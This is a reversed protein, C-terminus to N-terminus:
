KRKASHVETSDQMRQFRRHYRVTLTKQELDPFFVHNATVRPAQSTIGIGSGPWRHGWEGLCRVSKLVRRVNLISSSCYLYVSFSSSLAGDHLPILLGKSVWIIGDRESQQGCDMTLGPDSKGNGKVPVEIIRPIGVDVNHSRAEGPLHGNHSPRREYESGWTAERSDDRLVSFSCKGSM